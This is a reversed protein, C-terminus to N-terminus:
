LMLVSISFSNVYCSSAHVWTNAAEGQKVERGYCFTERTLYYRTQKLGYHKSLKYPWSFTSVSPQSYAATNEELNWLLDRVRSKTRRRRHCRFITWVSGVAGATNWILSSTPLIFERFPLESYLHTEQLEKNLESYATKYQILFSVAQKGCECVCRSSAPFYSASSLSTCNFM